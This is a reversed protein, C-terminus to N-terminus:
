LTVTTSQTVLVFTSSQHPSFYHLVRAKWLFIRGYVGIYQMWIEKSVLPIAKPLQYSAWSFCSMVQYGKESAWINWLIARKPWITPPIELINDYQIIRNDYCFSFIFIGMELYLSTVYGLYNHSCDKMSTGVHSWIYTIMCFPTQFLDNRNFRIERFNGCSVMHSWAFLHRSYIIEIPDM